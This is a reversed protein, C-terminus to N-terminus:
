GDWGDWGAGGASVTEVVLMLPAGLLACVSVIVVVAGSACIETFGLVAKLVVPPNAEGAIAVVM